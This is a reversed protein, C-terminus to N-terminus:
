VGDDVLKNFNLTKALNYREPNKLKFDTFMQQNSM